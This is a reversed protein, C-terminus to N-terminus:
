DDGRERYERRARMERREHWEREERGRHGRWYRGDYGEYRYAVVPYPTTVVVPQPRYVPAAYVPPPGYYGGRRYGRDDDALAAGTAAGVAGGVWAGNRGGLSQGIGAGLGAGVIAALLGDSDASAAPVFCASAALVVSAAVLCKRTQM